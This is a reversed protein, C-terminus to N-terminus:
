AEVEKVLCPPHKSWDIFYRMSGCLFPGICLINKFPCDSALRWNMCCHESYEQHTPQLMTIRAITCLGDGCWLRHGVRLDQLRSWKGGILLVLQEGTGHLLQGDYRAIQYIQEPHSETVVYEIGTHQYVCSPYSTTSSLTQRKPSHLEKKPLWLM